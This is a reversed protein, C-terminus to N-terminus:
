NFAEHMDTLHMTRTEETPMKKRTPEQGGEEDDDASSSRKKKREQEEEFTDVCDFFIDERFTTDQHPKISM